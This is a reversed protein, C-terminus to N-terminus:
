AAAMRLKRFVDPRVVAAGVRKRAHFRVMGNTAQTYPDEKMALEVRDYIRYGAKFDGFMVPFANSAIDPMDKMEVVPRGLITEPQGAQYSPQWLYNGQGDKLLRVAALTTGNMVWTGRNRYTAPMAYMLRILADASLNTAQGNLTHAVTAEQMFGQPEVATSGNVFALGEKAGFDEVLALEVESLVNASDEIMWQSLDVFTNIEKIDIEMEGFAPESATRAATEGRWAANTIGTRKPVVIKHSGAPRVDAISRVPSFEVLNRIFENTFEEPALVYGPADNAVTLAKRDIGGGQLFTTFAKKEVNEGHAIAPTGLFGKAELKDLREVVRNFAKLDVQPQDNAPPQTKVEQAQEEKEVSSNEKITPASKLTRVTAGPNCPAKVVSIERLSLETIERGKQYRKASKTVFAISLGGIEGARIQDAVERARPVDHILLKGKVHLGEDTETIESWIGITQAADHEALMPLSAPRDFAGKTITDGELDVTGFPWAIGTIEGTEAVSLSAKTEIREFTDPM